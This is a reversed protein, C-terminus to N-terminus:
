NSEAPLLGMSRLEDGTFLELLVRNPLCVITNGLIRTKRNDATVTGQEVCDQNDCTSSEMWVSDPTVHIVNVMDEGQTLTLSDEMSLLIPAYTTNGASVLLYFATDEASAPADSAETGPLPQDSVNRSPRATLGIAAVLVALVVLAIVALANRNRLWQM